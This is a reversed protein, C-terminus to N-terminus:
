HPKLNRILRSLAFAGLPYAISTTFLRFTNPQREVAHIFVTTWTTALLLLYSVSIAIVHGARGYPSDHFRGRLYWWIVILGLGFTFAGVALDIWRWIALPDTAAM